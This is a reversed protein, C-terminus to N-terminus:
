LNNIGTKRTEIQDLPAGNLLLEVQKIYVTKTTAGVAESYGPPSSANSQSSTSAGHVSNREDSQEPQLVSPGSFSSRFRDLFSSGQTAQTPTEPVTPNSKKGRGKGKSTSPASAPTDGVPVLTVCSKFFALQKEFDLLKRELFRERESAQSVETGESVTVTWKRRFEFPNLHINGTKNKSEIFCIVIRCPCDSSFLNESNYEEKGSVFSINRVEVKRYHIAVNKTTLVREIETFTTSSLQAVPVYLFCSLLKVKYTETDADPTLLLFEDSSRKLQLLFFIISMLFLTM